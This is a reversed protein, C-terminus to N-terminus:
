VQIVIEGLPQIGLPETVVPSNLGTKYVYRYLGYFVLYSSFIVWLISLVISVQYILMFFWFIVLIDLIFCFIAGSLVWYFYNM